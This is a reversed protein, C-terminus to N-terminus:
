TVGVFDVDPAGSNDHVEHETPLGGELGASDFFGVFSNGPSIEIEWFVESIRVALIEEFLDHDDIGAFSQGKLLDEAM